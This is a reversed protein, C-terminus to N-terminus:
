TAEETRRPRSIEVGASRGYRLARPKEVRVDVQDVRGDELCLLAIEEALREVLFYDSEEVLRVIRKSLAGYDVTDCLSDSLGAQHTDTHLVVNILVDQPRTREDDKAGIITRVLLDRILIKDGMRGGPVDEHDYCTSAETWRSRRVPSL